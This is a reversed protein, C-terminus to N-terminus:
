QEAPITRCVTDIKLIIPKDLKILKPKSYVVFDDGRQKFRGRVGRFRLAWERTVTTDDIPQLSNLNNNYVHTPSALWKRALKASIPWGEKDMANPIDQLDFEPLKDAPEADRPKDSPQPKAPSKASASAPAPAPLKQPAVTDAVKPPPPPPPENPALRAFSIKQQTDIPVCGVVGSYCKWHKGSYLLRPEMQYYTVKKVISM